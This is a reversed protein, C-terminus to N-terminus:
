DRDAGEILDDTAANAQDLKQIEIAVEREFEADTFVGKRVMLTIMAEQQTILRTLLEDIGLSM